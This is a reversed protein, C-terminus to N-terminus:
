QHESLNLASTEVALKQSLNELHLKEQNANFQQKQYKENCEKWFETLRNCDNKCFARFDALM